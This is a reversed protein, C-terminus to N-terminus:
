KAPALLDAYDSLAVAAHGLNCRWLMFTTGDIRANQDIRGNPGVLAALADMCTRAKAAALPDAGLRHLHQWAVGLWGLFSIAAGSERCNAEMIDVGMPGSWTVHRDEAYRLLERALAIRAPQDPYERMLHLAAYIATRGTIKHPVRPAWSHNGQDPWFGQPVYYTDLRRMALAEATAAVSRETARRIDGFMWLVEAPNLEPTWAQAISNRLGFEDEFRVVKGDPSLKGSMPDCFGWGGLAHQSAAYGTAVHLAATKWREDATQRYAAAFAQGYIYGNTTFSKYVKPLVSPMSMSQLHALGAMAMELGLAREAPTPALRARLMGCMAQTFAFTHFQSDGGDSIGHPVILSHGRYCGATAHDGCWRSIALAAARYDDAPRGSDAHGPYPSRKEIPCSWAPGGPSAIEATYAGPAVNAWANALIAGPDTGTFTPGTDRGTSKLTLTYSPARAVPVAWTPFPKDRLAREVVTTSWTTGDAATASIRVYGQGIKAAISGIVGNLDPSTATGYLQPTGSVRLASVAFPGTPSITGIRLLPASITTVRNRHLAWDTWTCPVAQPTGAGTGMIPQLSEKAAADRLAADVPPLTRPAIAGSEPAWAIPVQGPASWVTAPLATGKVTLTGTGLRGIRKVSLAAPAGDITLTGEIMDGTATITGSADILESASDEGRTAQLVRVGNRTVRLRVALQVPRGVANSGGAARCEVWWGDDPDDYWTGTASQAANRITATGLAQDGRRAIDLAFALKQPAAKRGGITAEPLTVTCQGRLRDAGLSEMTFTAPCAGAAAQPCRADVAVVAGGRVTLGILVPFNWTPYNGPAIGEAHIQIWADGAHVNPLLLALAALSAIRM